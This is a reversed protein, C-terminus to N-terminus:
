IGPDFLEVLFPQKPEVGHVKCLPYVREDAVRSFGIFWALAYQLSFVDFRYAQEDLEADLDDTGGDDGVELDCGSSACYSEGLYDDAVEDDVGCEDGFKVVLLQRRRRYVSVSIGPSGVHLALRAQWSDFWGIASCQAVFCFAGPRRRPSM